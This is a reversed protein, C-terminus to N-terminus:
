KFRADSLIWYVGSRKLAENKDALSFPTEGDQNLTTLNSGAAILMELAMPNTNSQAAGHVPTSGTSNVANVDAGAIILAELAALNLNSRSALHLPTNENPDRADVEFGASILAEVLGPVRSSTAADHLLTGGWGAGIYLNGDASTHVLDGDSWARRNHSESAAILIEIVPLNSSEKIAWQLPTNGNVDRADVDAGAAILAEVVAPDENRLSLAANRLPTYGDKSRSNVDAGAIILANVVAFRPSWASAYGLPTNGNVDRADVDAGAAILTQLVAPNISTLAAQHLPTRQGEDRANVDAGASICSAVNDNSIAGFFEVTNWNDCGNPWLLIGFMVLPIGFTVFAVVYCLTRFM